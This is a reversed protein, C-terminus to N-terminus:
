SAVTTLTLPTRACVIQRPDGLVGPAEDKAVLGEHEVETPDDRQATVAGWQQVGDVFAATGRADLPREDRAILDDVCQAQGVVVRDGDRIRQGLTADCRPRSRRADDTAAASAPRVQM